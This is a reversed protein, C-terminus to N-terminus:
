RIVQEELSTSLKCEWLEKLKLIQNKFEEMDVNKNDGFRRLKLRINEDKLFVRVLKTTTKRLREVTARHEDTMQEDDLPMIKGEPTINNEKFSKELEAHSVMLDAVDRGFADELDVDQTIITQFLESSLLAVVDVKLILEDLM